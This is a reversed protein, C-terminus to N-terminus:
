QQANANDVSPHEVRSCVPRGRGPLLRGKSLPQCGPSLCCRQCCPSATACRALLWQRSQPGRMRPSGAGSVLLAATRGLTPHRHRKEPAAGSDRKCSSDCCVRTSRTDCDSRPHHSTRTRASSPDHSSGIKNEHQVRRRAIVVDPHAPLIVSPSRSQANWATFLRGRM